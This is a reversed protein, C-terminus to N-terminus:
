KARTTEAKTWKRKSCKHNKLHFKGILFYTVNRFFAAHNKQVHQEFHCADDHFLLDARVSPLGMVAKVVRLKDAMNESHSHETAGLLLRSQPDLVFQRGATHGRMAPRAKDKNACSATREDERYALKRKRGRAAAPEPVDVGDQLDRHVGFHGAFGLARVECAPPYTLAKKVNWQLEAPYEVDFPIVDTPSRRAVSLGELAHLLHDRLSIRSLLEGERSCRQEHAILHRVAAEQGPANKARLLRLRTSALYDYSFGLKDTVFYVGRASVEEFSSVNCKREQQWGFNPRFSAGCNRSCCRGLEGGLRAGQSALALNRRRSEVLLLHGAAVPSRPSDLLETGCLLRQKAVDPGGARAVPEQPGAGDRGLRPRVGRHAQRGAH